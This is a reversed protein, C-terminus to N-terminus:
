KCLVLKALAFESCGDNPASFEIKDIRKTISTTDIYLIGNGSSQVASVTQQTYLNSDIYFELVAQEIGSSENFISRLEIGKVVMPVDFHVEMIENGDIENWDIEDPEGTSIGLGRTGRHTLTGQNTIVNGDTFYSKNINLNIMHDTTSWGSTGLVDEFPHTFTVNFDNCTLVATGIMINYHSLLSATGVVISLVAIILIIGIIQKKNM